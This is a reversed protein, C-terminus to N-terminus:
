FPLDPVEVPVPEPQEEQEPEIDLADLHFDLLRVSKDTGHQKAPVGRKDDTAHHQVCWEVFSQYNFGNRALEEKLLKGVIRYHYDDVRKGYYQPPYKNGDHEFYGRYQLCWDCIHDYARRNADTDDKQKLYPLLDKESLVNDDHFIHKAALRDAIIIMAGSDAQKQQVGKAQLSRSIRDAEKKLATVDEGAFAEVFLKGAHGYNAKITDAFAHPNSFIAKKVNVEIVRALAGEHDLDTTVTQEGSSIMALCWHLRDKLRASRDLRGKGSGECLNYATKAFGKEQQATQLEDLFLPINNLTTALIELSNITANAGQPLGRGIEPNGWVSAALMISVTKGSTSIASWLNCWFPLYGLKSLIPSAFSAALAMRAPKHEDSGDRIENVIELWTKYDGASRVAGVLQSNGNDQYKLTNSYPVFISDHWGLKSTVHVEPLLTYNLSEIECLYTSLEKASDSTVAIGRNALKIIKNSSFAEEKTITETRWRNGDRLFAITLEEERTDKNIIRAVPLIPHSCVNIQAGNRDLYDVGYEDCIYKGANMRDHLESFGDPLNPFLFGHSKKAEAIDQENFVRKLAADFYTVGFGVASAQERMQSHLFVYQVGNSRNKRLYEYPLTTRFDEKTLESINLAVATNQAEM